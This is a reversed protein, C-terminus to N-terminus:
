TEPLNKLYFNYWNKYVFHEVDEESYHKQLLEVLQYYKGAHELGTIWEKIGDFDSGLGIHRSGGLSCIHDIHPLLKDMSVPEGPYVFPSVFTVGIVGETRIISTIQEDNLNRLHQRIKSANSHSAINPKDSLEILEWFGKESLHSTDLIIGLRNCEKILSKGKTTLGGKRPEMVGDAAWNAHNWTIGISRVGLYFLIRVYTLDGQLADVGELSLMAGILGRERAAQLEDKSRIFHMQPNSLIREHFLDISRLVQRFEGSFQEPLYIAFNQIGIDSEIMKDLTVDLLRNEHVFDLKPNELLKSLVDCHADFIKM